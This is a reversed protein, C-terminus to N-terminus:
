LEMLKEKLEGFARKGEIKSKCKLLSYERVKSVVQGNRIKYQKCLKKLQYKMTTTLRLNYSLNELIKNEKSNLIEKSYVKFERRDRLWAYVKPMNQKMLNYVLEKTVSRPNLNDSVIKIVYINQPSIFMSAAEYFFAGEMDVMDTENRLKESKDVIKAFSELSGEKFPHRFLMDPYFARKSFGNILKNCLFVSGKTVEEKFCGSLGVNVFIDNEGYKFKTLLYTTAAIANVASTGSIALIEDEGKFVQFKTAEMIKKMKYHEIIDKGECYLATLFYVM